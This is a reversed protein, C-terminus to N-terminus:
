RYAAAYAGGVIEGDTVIVNDSELERGDLFRQLSDRVGAAYRAQAELTTGSMHPTLAHHPMTRWPHDDPAPEPYWVDGAYGALHGSELAEVLADTDVIAGRSINVLHAGEKMAFLTDRDFLGETEPTLPAAMVIVDCRELMERLYAYRLGLVDEEAASLRSRKYYLTTVDFPKLRQGIHQGIRGAGYIGVVKHELDHARVALAAIDWGGDVVQRHSAVFNRVLDLVQMVAHEAVSVVNSGTIEAVTVDREAAQGLDIHDSGVGATLVLKLEPARAFKEEDLYVPWFPTTILVEADALAEDLGDPGVRDTLSVLEHETEALMAPLGLANEACGLLEPNSAHEGGPYLVSVIKM